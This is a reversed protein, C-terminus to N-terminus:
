AGRQGHGIKTLLVDACRGAEDLVCPPASLQGGNQWDSFLTVMGDRILNNLIRTSKGPKQVPVSLIGTMAGSTLSEYVMSVSDASVWVRGSQALQTAVWATGTRLCSHYTMNKVDLNALAQSTSAPTRPSDSIQWSIDKDRHLVALIQDMLQQEDWHHHRSPGGILILGQNDQHQHSPLMTTIAGRTIIINAGPGPQDHDPILCYDFWRVPLSPQMIIVSKGGGGRQACLVSLHTRHGAGIILDPQPLREGPPFRKVLCHLVGLELNAAAIDHCSATALRCLANVLGRSQNDHGPRGDIIRWIVM